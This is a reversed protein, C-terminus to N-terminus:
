HSQKYGLWALLIAWSTLLFRKVFFVENWAKQDEKIHENLSTQLAVVQNRVGLIDDKLDVKMSRFKEDLYEYFQPDM